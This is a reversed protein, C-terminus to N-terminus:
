TSSMLNPKAALISTSEVLFMESIQKSHPKLLRELKLRIKLLRLPTVGLSNREMNLFFLTMTQILYFYWLKTFLYKNATITSLVKADDVVIISSAKIFSSRNNKVAKSASEEQAAFEPSSFNKLTCSPHKM